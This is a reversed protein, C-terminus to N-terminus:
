LAEQIDIKEQFYAYAADSDPHQNWKRKNRLNDKLMEYMTQDLDRCSYYLARAKICHEYTRGPEIYDAIFIIKELESMRARGTVHFKIANLINENTIGMVDAAVIAGMPGHWIFEDYNLYDSEGKLQLMTKTQSIDQEKAVDHLLAAVEAEAVDVGNRAALVKAMQMVGLIHQYRSPSVNSKVFNKIESLPARM